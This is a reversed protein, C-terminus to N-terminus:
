KILIMKKSIQQEGYKLTYIYVGSSLGKGIFEVQYEGVSQEKNVLVKVENGLIDYVVLKVKSSFPLQYNVTTSPNFPNPYNQSLTFEKPLIKNDRIDTIKQYSFIYVSGRLSDSYPASILVENYGDNNIDTTSNFYKGFGQANKYNPSLVKILQTKNGLHNDYIYISDTCLILDINNDNNIDGCSGIGYVKPSNVIVSDLSYYIYCSDDSGIIFNVKGHENNNGVDNIIIGFNYEDKVPEIVDDYIDDIDAGGYYVFVKCKEGFENSSILLDKNGDENIDNIIEIGDGFFFDGNNDPCNIILSNATSLTEGGRFLRVRGRGTTWNYSSAVFFDDYGDNNIDHFGKINGVPEQHYNPTYTFDSVQDIEDGGYYVHVRGCGFMGDFYTCTIAYDDYGDNNVDGLGAVEKGYNYETPNNSTLKIYNSTDFDNSGLYLRAYNGYDTSGGAGVLFDGYGDGNIDGASRVMGFKDGRNTGELVAVLKLSDQAFNLHNLLLIIVAVFSYKKAIM